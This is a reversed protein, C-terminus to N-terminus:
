KIEEKYAKICKECGAVEVGALRAHNTNLAPTGCLNGKGSKYIHTTNSWVNGKNGFLYYNQKLDIKNIM